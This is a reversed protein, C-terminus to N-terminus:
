VTELQKEEIKIKFYELARKIIMELKKVDPVKKNNKIYPFDLLLKNIIGDYDIYEFLIKNENKLHTIYLNDFSYDIVGSEVKFNLKNSLYTKEAILKVVAQQFAMRKSVKLKINLIEILDEHIPYLSQFRKIENELIELRDKDLILTSSIWKEVNQFHINAENRTRKWDIEMRRKNQLLPKTINFITSIM